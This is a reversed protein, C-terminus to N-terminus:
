EQEVLDRMQRATRLVHRGKMRAMLFRNLAAAIISAQAPLGAILSQGAFLTKILHVSIIFRSQGHDFLAARRQAFFQDRDAVEFPRADLDADVYGANRGIFCALQLLANPWLAPRLRVAHRAAAAFTLAHTFDLWNVNDALRNDSRTLAHEDVHLLTWAAAEVLVAFIAEPAHASSWGRVVAMAAKAPLGYLSDAVFPRREPLVQGWGAHCSAYDRFEPLRDERTAYVLSRVLLLLLPEATKPGLRAALESTKIAYILSHGFDAYHVLAATALAPMLETVSLGEALGGRMIAVARAEDEDEISALFAEESWSTRGPAFPYRQAGQADDAIHGLVEGLAALKEDPGIDPSDFLVLWDPAGALAHTTGFELRDSVWDIAHRIADAPDGDLRMLRATERVLRQQDVDEMAKTLAALVEGRRSAPDPPSLDLLIRGAELRVPFRRLNDGGVLTEGSALDFKWNHWNCTLVCGDSLVGESLPYGEHPCRNTCAFIGRETRLVLIQRGDHRFIAKGATELESVPLADIWAM